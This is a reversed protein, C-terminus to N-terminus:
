AIASLAKELSKASISAVFAEQVLGNKDIFYTIPTGHINYIRAMEGDLDFLTHPFVTIGAERMAAVQESVSGEGTSVAIVDAKPYRPATESLLLMLDRAKGTSLDFFILVTGCRGRNDSLSYLSEGDATVGTIDPAAQPAPDRWLARILFFLGIFLLATALVVWVPRTMKFFSRM